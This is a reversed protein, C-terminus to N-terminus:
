DICPGILVLTNSAANLFWTQSCGVIVCTLHILVPYIITYTRLSPFALVPRSIFIHIFGMTMTRNCYIYCRLIHNIARSSPICLYARSHVTCLPILPFMHICIHWAKQLCTWLDLCKHIHMLFVAWLGTDYPKIHQLVYIIKPYRTVCPSQVIFILVYYVCM